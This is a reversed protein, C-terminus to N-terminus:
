PSFPLFCPLFFFFTFCLLSSISEYLHLCNRPSLFVLLVLFSFTAGLAPPLQGIPLSSLFFVSLLFPSTFFYSITRLFFFFAPYFYPFHVNLFSSIQGSFSPFPFIYFFNVSLLAFLQLPPFFFIFDILYSLSM